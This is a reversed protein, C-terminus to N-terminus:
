LLPEGAYVLGTADHLSLDRKQLEAVLEDVLRRAQSLQDRVAHDYRTATGTREILASLLGRYEDLTARETVIAASADEAPETPVCAGSSELFPTVGEAWSPDTVETETQQMDTDEQFISPNPAPLALAQLDPLPPWENRQWMRRVAHYARLRRPWAVAAGLSLGTLLCGGALAALWSSWALVALSAVVM